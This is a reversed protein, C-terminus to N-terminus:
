DCIKMGYEIYKENRFKVVEEIPMNIDFYFGSFKGYLRWRIVWYYKNNQKHFYKYIHKFGSTNSSGLKRNQNNEYTNCWRLNELNNNLKNNDIHDIMKYNNPNSMFHICLLQHIRHNKGKLNVYAYGRSDTSHTMLKNRKCSWVDGNMNIRYLGEYGIIDVFDGMNDLDRNRNILKKFYIIIISPSLSKRRM